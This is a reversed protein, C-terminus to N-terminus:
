PIDREHKLERSDADKKAVADRVNDTVESNRATGPAQLSNRDNDCNLCAIINPLLVRESDMQCWPPVLVYEKLGVCMLIYGITHVHVIRDVNSIVHQNESLLVAQVFAAVFGIHCGNVIM